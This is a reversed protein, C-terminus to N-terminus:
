KFVFAARVNDEAERVHREGEFSTLGILIVGGGRRKVTLFVSSANSNSAKSECSM